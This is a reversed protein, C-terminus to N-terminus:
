SKRFSGPFLKKVYGKDKKLWKELRKLPVFLIDDKFLIDDCNCFFVLHSKPNSYKKLDQIKKRAERIKYHTVQAFLMKKDKTYGFIDIDKLTRGVPLLLRELSPCRPTDPNRLYESCVTEQESPFLNDWSIETPMEEVLNKLRNKVSPWRTITGQRPRSARLSMSENPALTKVSKKGIQLTKLKAERPYPFEGARWKTECIEFSNPVIKGIKVNKKNRYEAWIYGSNMNLEAFTSIARKAGREEYDDPDISESDEVEEPTDRYVEPFHIGIKDYEWLYDIAEEVVSMGETHRVFYSKM